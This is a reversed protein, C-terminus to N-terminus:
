QFALGEESKKFLTEDLIDIGALVMGSSYTKFTFTTQM